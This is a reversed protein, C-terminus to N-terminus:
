IKARVKEEEPTSIKFKGMSENFWKEYEKIM